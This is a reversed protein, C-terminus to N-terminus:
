KELPGSGPVLVAAGQLRGCRLDSFAQNANALQYEVPHPRIPVQPALALFEEGDTRTLNAVSRVVREGVAFSLFVFPHREHLHRRM